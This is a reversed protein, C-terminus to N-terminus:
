LSKFVALQYIDIKDTVCFDLWDQEAVTTTCPGYTIITIKRMLSEKRLMKLVHLLIEGKFPTFMFFVTGESYNAQRADINIFEVNSLQLERASATAHVCFAPEFEIGTTKIGCLLNILIAPQGLGAGLDFFVDEKKIQMQNTLGFVIRAPTKQYYIMDPELDRTQIPINSFPIIGNILLDLHDYGPEEEYQKTYIDFNFYDAILDKFVNGTDLGTRIQARLKQFLSDNIEELDAKIKEARNRLLKLQNRQISHSLLEEIPDMVRAEIFNILESRREFNKEEFVSSNKEASDIYSQLEFIVTKIARDYM